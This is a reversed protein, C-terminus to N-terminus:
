LFYFELEKKEYKKYIVIYVRSNTCSPEKGINKTVIRTNGKKKDKSDIKGFYSVRSVNMM